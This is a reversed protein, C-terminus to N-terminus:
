AGNGKKPMRKLRAATLAPGCPIRHSNKKWHLPLRRTWELELQAKREILHLMQAACGEAGFYIRLSRAHAAERRLDEARLGLIRTRAEAPLIDFLGARLYFAEASADHDPYDILRRVLESKGKTTLHYEFRTQGRSGPATKKGVWGKREFEHLMPYVLNNHLEGKGLMLGAEKKIQYGHKPGPLLDALILLDFM